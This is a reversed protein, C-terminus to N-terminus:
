FVNNSKKFMFGWFYSSAILSISYGAVVFAFTVIDNKIDEINFVYILVILLVNIISVCIVDFVFTGLWYSLNTLGMVKMLYRINNEREYVPFFCYVTSNLAYAFNVLFLFM